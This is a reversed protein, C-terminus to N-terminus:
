AYAIRSGKSLARAHVPDTVSVVGEQARITSLAGALATADTGSTLNQGVPAAFVLQATSGSQAPFRAKLLDFAKQSETGPTSVNDTTKGGLAGSLVGIGILVIVWVAIMARRRRVALHGLRYLIDAM